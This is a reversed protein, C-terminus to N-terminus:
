LSIEEAENGFSYITGKGETFYLVEFVGDDLQYLNRLSPVANLMAEKAELRHDPQVKGEVRVWRNEITSSIEVSPNAIM